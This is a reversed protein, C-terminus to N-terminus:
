SRLVWELGVELSDNPQWGLKLLPSNKGVVSVQKGTSAQEALREWQNSNGILEELLKLLELNTYGFSTGLDLEIPAPHRILWSIASSIDRITVWDLTSTTDVLDIQQKSKISQILNPILRKEDQRPGYPQFVRAWSLRSKSQGLIEKTSEFARVKQKAYLSTPSLSTVGATSPIEQLGYEACSGLVILHEVGMSAVYTGLRITFDAYEINSFDELYKTHTTIWATHIIVQPSWTLTRAFEEYNRIDGIVQKCNIDSKASRSFILLEHGESELKRAIAGAIFGSGIILIKV